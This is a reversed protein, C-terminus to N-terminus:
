SQRPPFKKMLKILEENRFLLAYGRASMGMGDKIDPDAGSELLLETIKANGNGVALVMISQGDSSMTSLDAGREILYKTVKYDKIWVADMVASYGRDSAIANLDAGHDLLYDILEKNDNRVALSLLPVGQMTRANVDIGADLIMACVEPKKKELYFEFSDANFSIGKSSLAELNRIRKDEAAISEKNQSLYTVADHVAPFVRFSANIEYKSLPVKHGIVVSLKDRGSLLGLLFMMQPPLRSADGTFVVCADSGRVKGCLEAVNDKSPRSVLVLKESDLKNKSLFSKIKGADREQGENFVVLWKM